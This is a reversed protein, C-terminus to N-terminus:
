PSSEIRKCLVSYTSTFGPDMEEEDSQLLSLMCARNLVLCALLILSSINSVKAAQPLEGWAWHM